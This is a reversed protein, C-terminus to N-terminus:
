TPVYIHWRYQSTYTDYKDIFINKIKEVNINKMVAVKGKWKCLKEDGCGLDKWGWLKLSKLGM